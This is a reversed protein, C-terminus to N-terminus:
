SSRTCEILKACTLCEEPIEKAKGHQSLYGLHYGCGPAPTATPTQPIPTEPEESPTETEPQARTPQPLQAQPPMLEIKKLTQRHRKSTEETEAPKQDRLRDVVVHGTKHFLKTGVWILGMATVAGVYNTLSVQAVPKHWVLIDYAIWSLFWGYMLLSAAYWVLRYSVISANPNKSDVHRKFDHGRKKDLAKV